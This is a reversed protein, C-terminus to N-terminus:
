VSGVHTAEHKATLLDEDDVEFTQDSLAYVVVQHVDEKVFPSLCVDRKMPEFLQKLEDLRGTRYSDLGGPRLIPKASVSIKGDTGM